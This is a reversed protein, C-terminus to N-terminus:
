RNLELTYNDLDDDGQIFLKFVTQGNLLSMVKYIQNIKKKKSISLSGLEM